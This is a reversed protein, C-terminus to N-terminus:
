SARLLAALRDRQEPTLPPAADLQQRIATRINQEALERKAAAIAAPDGSRTAVGLKSRARMADTTPSTM